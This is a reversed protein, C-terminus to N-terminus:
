WCVLVHFIVFALATIAILVCGIGTEVVGCCGLKSCSGPLNALFDSAILFSSPFPRVLFPERERSLFFSPDVSSLLIHGCYLSFRLASKKKLTELVIFYKLMLSALMKDLLVFSKIALSSLETLISHVLM